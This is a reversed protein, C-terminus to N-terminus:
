RVSQLAVKVRDYEAATEAVPRDLSNLMGTAAMEEVTRCLGALTRAGLFASTSKLIHAARCLEAANGVELTQQMTQLLKPAEVLYEAVMEVLFSRDGRVDSLIAELATGDIVAVEAM